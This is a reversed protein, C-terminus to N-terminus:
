FDKDWNGVDKYSKDIVHDEHDFQDFHSTDKIDNVHPVMPAKLKRATYGKWDYGDFWRHNKIDDTGGKLNGLRDKVVRNLLGKVLSKCDSNFSSPFELKGKVINKCIVVQDFNMHDCFPSFGTQMEYVM